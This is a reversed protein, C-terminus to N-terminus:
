LSETNTFSMRIFLFCCMLIAKTEKKPRYSRILRYLVLLFGKEDGDTIKKKERRKKRNLPKRTQKQYSLCFLVCLLATIHHPISFFFFFLLPSGDTEKKEGKKTKKV